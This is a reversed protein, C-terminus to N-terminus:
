GGCASGDTDLTWKPLSWLANQSLWPLAAQAQDMGYEGYTSACMSDIADLIERQREPSLGVHYVDVLEAFMAHQQPTYAQMPKIGTDQKWQGDDSPSCATMTMALTVVVGVLLVLILAGACGKPGYDKRNGNM